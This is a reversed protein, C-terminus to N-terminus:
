PKVITGKTMTSTQLAQDKAVAATLSRPDERACSVRPASAEGLYCSSTAAQSSRLWTVSAFPITVTKLAHVHTLTDLSPLLARILGFPRFDSSLAFFLSCEWSQPNIASINNTSLGHCGNCFPFPCPAFASLSVSLMSVIRARLFQCSVFRRCTLAAYSLSTTVM